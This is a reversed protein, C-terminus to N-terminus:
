KHIAKKNKRIDIRSAEKIVITDLPSKDVGIAIGWADKGRNCLMEISQDILSLAPSLNTWKIAVIGCM